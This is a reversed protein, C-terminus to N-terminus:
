PRADTAKDLAENEKVGYEFILPSAIMLTSSMAKNTM